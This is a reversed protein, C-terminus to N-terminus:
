RFIAVYIENDALSTTNSGSAVFLSSASDIVLAPGQVPFDQNAGGYLGLSGVACYNTDEMANTFNVTFKGIARDTVSAVNFSERIALTGAGSFNVWAKAVGSNVDSDLKATTISTDALKATTISTDALKATTIAGSALDAATIIGDQVLSVGTTGNLELAM